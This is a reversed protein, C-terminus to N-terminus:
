DAYKGNRSLHGVRFSRCNLAFSVEDRRRRTDLLTLLAELNSTAAEYWWVPHVLIHM